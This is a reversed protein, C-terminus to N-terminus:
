VNENWDGARGEEKERERSERKDSHDREREISM